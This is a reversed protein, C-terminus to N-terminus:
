DDEIVRKCLIGNDHRLIYSTIDEISHQSTELYEKDERLFKRAQKALGEGLTHRLVAVNTMNHTLPSLALWGIAGVIDSHGHLVRNDVSYRGITGVAIICCADKCM